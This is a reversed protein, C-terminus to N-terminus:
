EGGDCGYGRQVSAGNSHWYLAEKEGGKAKAKAKGGDREREREGAGGGGEM